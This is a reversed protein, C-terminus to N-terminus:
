EEIETPFRVMGVLPLAKVDPMAVVDVDKDVISPSVGVIVPGECDNPLVLEASDDAVREVVFLTEIGAVVIVSDEIVDSIASGAVGVETLVSDDLASVLELM